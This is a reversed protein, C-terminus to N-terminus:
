TAHITKNVEWGNEGATVDNLYIFFTGIRGGSNARPIWASSWWSQWLPWTDCGKLTIFNLYWALFKHFYCTVLIYAHSDYAQSQKYVMSRSSFLIEILTAMCTKLQQFIKKLADLVMWSTAFLSGCAQQEQEDLYDKGGCIRWMKCVGSVLWPGGEFSIFFLIVGVVLLQHPTPDIPAGGGGFFFPAQLKGVFHEVVRERSMGLKQHLGRPIGFEHIGDAWLDEGRRTSGSPSGLNTVCWRTSYTLIDCTKGHRIDHFKFCNENTIMLYMIMIYERMDNLVTVFHTYARLSCNSTYCNSMSFDDFCLM